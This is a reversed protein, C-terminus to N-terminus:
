FASNEIGNSKMLFCIRFCVVEFGILKHSGSSNHVVSRFLVSKNEFNWLFVLSIYLIYLCM